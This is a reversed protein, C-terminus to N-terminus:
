PTALAQLPTRPNNRVISSQSGARITELHRAPRTFDCADGWLRSHGTMAFAADEDNSRAIPMLTGMMWAGMAPMDDGAM